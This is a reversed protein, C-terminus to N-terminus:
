MNLISASDSLSKKPDPHVEMFIGAIGVAIAAKALPLIYEREGGSKKALGGPLQVSHTADFIVPFGYEKMKEMSRMDVVLNHYGFFTGRETLLINNNERSKVKEVIHRMDDPALFQGKKVNVIRGTDAAKVILDTQRSLFAPIQIIDVIEAAQAAEIPTHIDTTIPINLKNKIDVLIKLGKEIGPGRYSTVSSRNAKDYSAKFILPINHKQSIKKLYQAIEFTEDFDKIVCPGAILVFPKNNSIDFNNLKIKLQKMM